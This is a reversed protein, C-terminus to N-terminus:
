VLSSQGLLRELSFFAVCEEREFENVNSAKLYVEPQHLANLWSEITEYLGLWSNTPFM